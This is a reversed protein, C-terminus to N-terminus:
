NELGTKWKKRGFRELKRIARDARTKQNAAQTYQQVMAETKHGTVAMIDRTDCGADALMTAATHRLGHFSLGPAVKGEDTLRRILKFFMSAFGKGTLPRGRQGAVITTCAVKKRAALARQREREADLIERLLTHAPLDIPTGTKMQIGSIRNGKYATWPAALADGRRYAAFGGLAIPTRMEPEAAKIVAMLEDPTWARNVKKAGKPRKLLKVAMAPNAEIWDYEAAWALILRLVQVVYNAFRRKHKRFASDRAKRVDAKTIAKVPERNSPKLFEIVKLYDGKTSPSLETFAPSALYAKVLAGWSGDGHREDPEGGRLAKVEDLFAQTNPEAEIRKGSVRDYHYIRGKSRVRKIGKLRMTVVVM